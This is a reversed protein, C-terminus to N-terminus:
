GGAVPPIFVVQDQDRLPTQWDGFESNIAVRLHSPAIGLGHVGSLESYLELPTRAATEVSEEASGRQERLIAFYRIHITKM